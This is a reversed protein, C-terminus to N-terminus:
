VGAGCGSEDVDHLPQTAGKPECHQDGDERGHALVICGTAGGARRELLCVVREHGAGVSPEQDGRDESSAARPRLRVCGVFRRLRRVPESRSVAVTVVISLNVRSEVQADDDGRGRAQEDCIGPVAHVVTLALPDTVPCGRAINAASMRVTITDERGQASDPRHDQAIQLTGKM